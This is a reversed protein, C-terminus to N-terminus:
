LKEGILFYLISGLFPLLIIVIIWLVKNPNSSKLCDIPWAAVSLLDPTAGHLLADLKEVDHRVLAYKSIKAVLEPRRAITYIVGYGGAGIEQGLKYAVGSRAGTIAGAGVNVTLPAQRVAAGAM